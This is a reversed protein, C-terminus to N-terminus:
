PGDTQQRTSVFAYLAGNRGTVYLANGSIAMGSTVSTGLDFEWIREGTAGSLALLRGGLTVVYLYQGALVPSAEMGGTEVQWLLTGSAADLACFAHELPVFVREGNASPSAFGPPSPLAAEWVVEGTLAQAAKLRHTDGDRAMLYLIGAHAVPTTHGAISTQWLPQGTAADLAQLTGGEPSFLIGNWAAVSPNAWGRSGREPRRLWRTTGDALDFAGAFRGAGVHAMGGNVLPSGRLFIQAGSMKSVMEENHWLVQGNNADLAAAYGDCAQYLVYQGDTAPTNRPSRGGALNHRWLPEGTAADLAIVIPCPERPDSNNMIGAFVRGEAVVPASLGFNRNVHVWSLELPPALETGADGDRAPSGQYMGWSAGPLITPLPAPDAVWVRRELAPWPTGTNDTAQVLFVVPDPWDLPVDLTGTWAWGGRNHLAVEALVPGAGPAAVKVHVSVVDVATDAANVLLPVTRGRRLGHSNWHAELAADRPPHILELHREFGGKRQMATLRGDPDAQMLAFSPRGLDRIHARGSNIGFTPIGEVELVQTTHYHGWFVGKGGHKKLLELLDTARNRLGDWHHLNAVVHFRGDLRELLKETWDLAENRDFSWPFNVFLYNGCTFAYYFPAFLQEMTQGRYAERRGRDTDHNGMVTFVPMPYRDFLERAWRMHEIADVSVDGSDLVFLPSRPMRELHRGIANYLMDVHYDRALHLDGHHVFHFTEDPSVPLPHLTFDADPLTDREEPLMRHLTSTPMTGRPNVITVWRARGHPELAYRGHADTETFSFGDSVLVGALPRADAHGPSPAALFVRGNQVPVGPSATVATVLM